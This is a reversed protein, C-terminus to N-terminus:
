NTKGESMQTTALHVKQCEGDATRTRKKNSTTNSDNRVSQIMYFSLACSTRARLHRRRPYATTRRIYLCSAATCFVRAATPRRCSSASSAPSPAPPERRRHLRHYADSPEVRAHASYICRTNSQKLFIDFGSYENLNRSTPTSSTM